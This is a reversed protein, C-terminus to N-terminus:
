HFKMRSYAAVDLSSTQNKLLYHHAVKAVMAGNDTCFVPSSFFVNVGDKFCRERFLERLRGNSAVGGGVV